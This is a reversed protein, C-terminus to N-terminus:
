SQDHETVDIEQEALLEGVTNATTWSKIKRVTM